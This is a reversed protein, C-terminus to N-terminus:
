RTMWDDNIVCSVPVHVSGNEGEGEGLESKMPHSGRDNHGRRTGLRYGGTVRCRAFFEKMSYATQSENKSAQITFRKTQKSGGSRTSEKDSTVSEFSHQM